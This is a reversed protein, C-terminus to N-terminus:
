QQTLYGNLVNAVETLRILWCGGGGKWSEFHVIIKSKPAGDVASRGPCEPGNCPIDMGGQNAHLPTPPPPQIPM